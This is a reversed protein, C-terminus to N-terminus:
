ISVQDDFSNRNEKTCKYSKEIRALKKEGINIKNKYQLFLKIKNKHQLFLECNQACTTATSEAMFISIATWAGIPPLTTM